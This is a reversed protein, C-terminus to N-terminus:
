GQILYFDNLPGVLAMLAKRTADLRAPIQRINEGGKLTYTVLMNYTAITRGRKHTAEPVKNLSAIERMAYGKQLEKLRYIWGERM